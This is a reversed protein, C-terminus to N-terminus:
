DSLGGRPRGTKPRRREDCHYFIFMRGNYRFIEIKMPFGRKGTIRKNEAAALITVGERGRLSLCCAPLM